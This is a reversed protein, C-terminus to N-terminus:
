LHKDHAVASMDANIRDALAAQDGVNYRGAALGAALAADLKPRVDALVYNAAIIRRVDAVVKQADIQQTAATQTPQATAAGSTLSLAAASALINAMKMKRGSRFFM